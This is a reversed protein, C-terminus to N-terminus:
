LMTANGNEVFLRKLSRNWCVTSRSLPDLVTDSIPNSSNTRGTMADKGAAEPFSTLQWLDTASFRMSHLYSADDRGGFGASPLSNSLSTDADTVLDASPNDALRWM